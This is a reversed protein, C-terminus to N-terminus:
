AAHNIGVGYATMSLSGMTCGDILVDTSKGSAAAIGAIYALPLFHDTTPVALRWDDSEQLAGLEAPTELMLQRADDDFRQAWDFGGEPNNWDIARLNHVVNGSAMIWVGDDMLPALKSGLELHYALPKNADIALQVVPVDASPFAHALVSWTGHDIGWSDQDLGVWTPEVLEAVQKALDPSGDVPYEFQSLEQPFGYFDHIIRPRSESTVATANIFWHASIALIARPREMSQAFESWMTTFRNVELANMPSGHGIFAAPITM